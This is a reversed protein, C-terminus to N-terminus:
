AQARRSGHAGAPLDLRRVARDEDVSEARQRRLLRRGRGRADAALGPRLGFGARFIGPVLSRRSENDAPYLAAEAGRDGLAVTDARVHHHGDRDDAGARALEENYVITQLIGAGRGGYQVPWNPALWRGEAMKKAWRKQEEFANKGEAMLMERSRPAFQKNADLWARFEMRFAEDEPNFNFDM